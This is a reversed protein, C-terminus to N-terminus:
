LCRRRGEYGCIEVFEKFLDTMYRIQKNGIIGKEIVQCFKGYGKQYILTSQEEGSKENQILYSTYNIYCPKQYRVEIVIGDKGRIHVLFKEDKKLESAQRLLGADVTESQVLLM